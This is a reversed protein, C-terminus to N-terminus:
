SIHINRCIDSFLLMTINEYFKNFCTLIFLMGYKVSVKICEICTAIDLNHKELIIKTIYSSHIPCQM